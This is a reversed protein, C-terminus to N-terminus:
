ISRLRFRSEPKEGRVQLAGFCAVFDAGVTDRWAAILRSRTEPDAAQKLLGRWEQRTMCTDAADTVLEAFEVLKQCDTTSVDVAKQLVETGQGGFVLNLLDEPPAKPHSRHLSLSAAILQMATTATDM